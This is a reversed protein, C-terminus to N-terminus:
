LHKPTKRKKGSRRRTKRKGGFSDGERSLLLNLLFVNIVSIVNTVFRRVFPREVEPIRRLISGLPPVEMFESHSPTTYTNIRIALIKSDRTVYKFHVAGSGDRHNSGNPHITLHINGPSNMRGAHDAWYQYDEVIIDSNSGNRIMLNNTHPRLKERLDRDFADWHENLVQNIRNSGTVTRVLKESQFRRLKENRLKDALVQENKQKERFVNAEKRRAEESM